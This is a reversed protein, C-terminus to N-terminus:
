RSTRQTLTPRNEWDKYIALRSPRDSHLGNVALATALFACGRIYDQIEIVAQKYEKYTIVGHEWANFLSLCMQPAPSEKRYHGSAIAANLIEQTTKMFGM